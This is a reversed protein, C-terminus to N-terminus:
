SGPLRSPQSPPGALLVPAAPAATRNKLDRCRQKWLDRSATVDRLTVRLQRIQRQKAAARAKWQARGQQLRRLQRQGPSSPM